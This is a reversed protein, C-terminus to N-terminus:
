QRIYTPSSCQGDINCAFGQVANYNGKATENKNNLIEKRQSDRCFSQLGTYDLSVYM